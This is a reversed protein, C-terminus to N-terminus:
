RTKMLVQCLFPLDDASDRPEHPLHVADIELKTTHLEPPESKVWHM